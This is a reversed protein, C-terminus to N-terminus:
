VKAAHYIVHVHIGTSAAGDIELTLIIAVNQM